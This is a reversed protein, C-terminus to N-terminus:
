VTSFKSNIQERYFVCIDFKLNIQERYFVYINFKMKKIFMIFVSYLVKMYQQTGDYKRITSGLVVFDSKM